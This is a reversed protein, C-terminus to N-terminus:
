KRRIKKAHLIKSIFKKVPVNKEHSFNNISSKKNTLYKQSYIRKFSFKNKVLFKKKSYNGQFIIKYFIKSQIIKATLKKEPFDKKCPLFKKFFKKLFFHKWPLSKKFKEDQFHKNTSLKKEMYKYPLFAPWFKGCFIEPYIIKM